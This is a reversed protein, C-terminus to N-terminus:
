PYNPITRAEAPQWTSRFIMQSPDYMTKMTGSPIGHITYACSHTCVILPKISATGNFGSREAAAPSGIWRKLAESAGHNIAFRWGLLFSVTVDGVPRFQIACLGALQQHQPRAVVAATVHLGDRTGFGALEGAWPLLELRQDAVVASDNCITPTRFM